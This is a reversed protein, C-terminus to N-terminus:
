STLPLWLKANMPFEFAEPMVGIVMAAVGDVRITRGVITPDSRYRLRWLTQGLVVVPQAGVREDDSRFDRGITPRRGLLGFSHASVYAGRLREAAVQDDSVNMSQERMGAIGEFTRAAVQWDKLELYSVNGLEVVRDPEEFPMDRLLAGNVLSFATNTSTIGLTLVM